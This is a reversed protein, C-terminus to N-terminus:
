PCEILALYERVMRDSTFREEYRERNRQSITSRLGADSVISAIAEALKGANKSMTTRGNEGDKVLEPNGGMSSTVIPIGARLGELLV